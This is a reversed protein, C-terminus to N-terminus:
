NTRLDSVPMNYRRECANVEEIIESLKYAGSKYKGAREILESQLMQAFRERPMDPKESLAKNGAAGARQHMLAQSSSGPPFLNAALEFRIACARDDLAALRDHDAQVSKEVSGKLLAVVTDSSPVGGLRPKFDFAADCASVSALLSRQGEYVKDAAATLATLKAAGVEGLLGDVKDGSGLRADLVRVTSKKADPSRKDVDRARKEFDITDFGSAYAALGHFPISDKQAELTRIKARFEQAVIYSDICEGPSTGAQASLSTAFVIAVRFAAGIFKM